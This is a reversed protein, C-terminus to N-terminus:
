ISNIYRTNKNRTQTPNSRLQEMLREHINDSSDTPKLQLDLTKSTDSEGDLGDM